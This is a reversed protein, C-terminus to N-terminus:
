NYKIKNKTFSLLKCLIFDLIILLIQKIYTSIYNGKSIYLNYIEMREREREEKM